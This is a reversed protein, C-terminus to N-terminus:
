CVPNTQLAPRCMPSKEQIPFYGEIWDAHPRKKTLRSNPTIATRWFLTAFSVPPVCAYAPDVIDFGAM